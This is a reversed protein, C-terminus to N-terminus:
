LLMARMSASLHETLTDGDRTMVLAAIGHADAHTLALQPGMVMYATAYADARMCSRHMVTTAVVNSRLPFGTRPNITHALRVGDIEINREYDGSTAISIQHLAAMFGTTPRAGPPQTIEVWWPMGDPKVGEGSLEGGVEVLFSTLGQSRLLEALQDVAYGKAIGSLDLRIGGPQTSRRTTKDFSLKRWGAHALLQATQATPQTAPRPQSGFGWLDVLAGLTPDFCGDTDQAIELACALVESFAQPLAHASGAAADNFRSLSSNPAWSSMEDILCQFLTEAKRKLRESDFNASAIFSANWTTGMTEGSLRWLAEEVPRQPAADVPPILVRRAEAQEM